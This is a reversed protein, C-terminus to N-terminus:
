VGLQIVTRGAKANRRAAASVVQNLVTDGGIVVQIQLPGDDGGGLYKALVQALPGAWADPNQELPLVVEKKRQEGIMALTPQDIIGGRALKPIQPVSLPSEKWLKKFPSVGLVSVSRIKNLMKNIANFPVRILTNIGSILKNVVTKFVSAIGDKIGSFIKGGSSFVNKVNTWAASFKTKFWTPINKFTNKIGDWANTAGNKVATWVGAFYNKVSGWINAASTKVWEWSKVLWASIKDWNKWLLVFIAILAAVALVILTIPSTIIGMVVGFLAAAVKVAVFAVALSLLILALTDFEGGADGRLWAIFLKLREWMDKIWLWIPAFISRIFNGIKAAADIVGTMDEGPPVLPSTEDAGGGGQSPSSLIHLEDFGMVSRMAKKAAAGYGEVAKKAANLEQAAKFSDQYSKGFLASLFSAAFTTAKALGRMLANIAPLAAQYIPQFAVQLNTKILDLSRSFDQNTKLASTLYSIFGRVVKYIVGFLLVRRLVRKIAATVQGAMNNASKSVLSLISTVDGGAAGVVEAMDVSSEGTQDMSAGIAGASASVNSATAAMADDIKWIAAAARNSAQVLSIMSAETKAIEMQMKYAKDSDGLGMENLYKYQERLRVLKQQQLDIRFNINELKHNLTSAEAAMFDLEKSGKGGTLGSFTNRITRQTAEMSAGVTRQIAGGAKTAERQIANDPIEIDLQVRGITEEAM